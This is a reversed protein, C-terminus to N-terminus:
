NTSVMQKNFFKCTLKNNKISNFFKYMDEKTCFLKSYSTDDNGCIYLKYPYEITCTEKYWPITILEELAREQNYRFLFDNHKRLKRLEENTLKTRTVFAGDKRAYSFHEEEFIEKVLQHYTYRSYTLYTKQEAILEAISKLENYFRYDELSYYGWYTNNNKDKFSGGLIDGDTEIGGEKLLIIGNDDPININSDPSIFSSVIKCNNCLDQISIVM